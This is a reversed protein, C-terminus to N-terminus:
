LTCNIEGLFCFKYSGIAQEPTLKLFLQLITLLPWQSQLTRGDMQRDTQRCPVVPSGIFPNENFKITLSKKFIHGSFELKM